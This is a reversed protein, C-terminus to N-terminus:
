VLLINLIVVIFYELVEEVFAKLQNLLIPSALQTCLWAMLQFLLGNVLVLDQRHRGVSRGEEFLYDSDQLCGSM